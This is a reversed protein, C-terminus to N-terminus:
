PSAPAARLLGIVHLAQEQIVSSESHVRLSAGLVVLAGAATARARNDTSRLTLKTLAACGQEQVELSFMHSRLAAVVAETAGQTASRLAEGAEDSTYPAL